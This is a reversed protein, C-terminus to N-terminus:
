FGGHFKRRNRFAHAVKKRATEDDVEEWDGGDDRKLFRGRSDKVLQVINETMCTKELRSAAEYEDMKMGVITRFRLNGPHEVVTKGRGFLVDNPHIEMGPSQPLAVTSTPSAWNIKFPSAGSGTSSSESKSDLFIGPSGSHAREWEADLVLRQAIWLEHQDLNTVGSADVPLAERPVGFTNLIYQCEVHSGYHPRTRVKTRPSCAYVGLCTVAYQTINNYCLHMSAFHLPVSARLKGTFSGSFNDADLLYYILVVGKQQTEESESMAMFTYFAVRAANNTEKCVRLKLMGVMISRGVADTRPAVQMYGSRLTDMDDDSFDSLTIDKVLKASGFLDKKVEFFRIMREAAEKSNYRDARLFKLRFRRDSVYQPNMSEAEQFVSGPKLQQLFRNMLLLRSEMFLPDEEGNSIGHVDNEASEREQVSLETMEKAIIRDVDHAATAVTAPDTM